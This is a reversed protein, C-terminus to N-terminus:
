VEKLLYVEHVVNGNNCDTITIKYKNKITKHKVPQKIEEKINLHLYKKAYELLKKVSINPEIYLTIWHKSISLKYSKLSAVKLSTIHTTFKNFNLGETLALYNWKNINNNLLQKYHNIKRADNSTLKGIEAAKFLKNVLDIYIFVLRDINPRFKKEYDKCEKKDTFKKKDVSEYITIKKM